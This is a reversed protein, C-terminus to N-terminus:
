NHVTDGPTYRVYSRYPGHRNRRYHCVAAAAIAGCPFTGMASAAPQVVPHVPRPPHTRPAAAGPTDQGPRVALALSGTAEGLVALGYPPSACPERSRPAGYSSVCS